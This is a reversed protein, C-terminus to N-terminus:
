VLNIYSTRLYLPALSLCTSYTLELIDNLLMSQTTYAFLTLYRSGTQRRLKASVNHNTM